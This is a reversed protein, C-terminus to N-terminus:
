LSGVMGLVIRQIESLVIKRLHLRSRNVSSGLGVLDREVPELHSVPSADLAIRIRGRTQYVMKAMRPKSAVLDINVMLRFCRPSSTTCRILRPHAALVHQEVSAQLASADRVNRAVLEIEVPVASLGPELTVPLSVLGPSLISVVFTTSKLQRVDTLNLILSGDPSLSGRSSALVGNVLDSIEYGVGPLPAGFLSVRSEFRVVGGSEHSRLKLVHRLGSKLRSRIATLKTNGATSDIILRERQEILGQAEELSRIATASSWDADASSENFRAALRSADREFSSTRQKADDRLSALTSIPVGVTLWAQYSLVSGESTYTFRREWYVSLTRVGVLQGRVRVELSQSVAGSESVRDNSFRQKELVSLKSRIRIALEAVLESVGKARATSRADSLAAAQGQVVVCRMGPACKGSPQKIWGPREESMREVPANRTPTSCGIVALGMCSCILFSAVWRNM